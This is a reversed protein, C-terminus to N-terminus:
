EDESDEKAVDNLKFKPIKKDVIRIIERFSEKLYERFEESDIDKDKNKKM